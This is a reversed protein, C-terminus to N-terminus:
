LYNIACPVNASRGRNQNLAGWATTFDPPYKKQFSEHLKHYATQSLIKSVKCYKQSYTGRVDAFNTKM